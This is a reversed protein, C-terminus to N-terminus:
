KSNLNIERLTTDFLKERSHQEVMQFLTSLSCSRSFQRLLVFHSPALHFHLLTLLSKFTFGDQPINLGSDRSKNKM